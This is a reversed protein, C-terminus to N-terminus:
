IWSNLEIAIVLAAVEEEEQGADYYYVRYQQDISYCYCNRKYYGDRQLKLLLLSTFKNWKSKGIYNKKTIQVINTTRIWIHHSYGSWIFFSVKSRNSINSSQEESRITIADDIRILILSTTGLITM